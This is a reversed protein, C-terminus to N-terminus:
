ANKRNKILIVFFILLIAALPLLSTCPPMAVPPGASASVDLPLVSSLSRVLLASLLGAVAKSAIFPAIPVDCGSLVSATQLIVSLGSFGVAFACVALANSATLAGSSFADAASACGSAFEFVSLLASYVGESPYLAYVSETVIRGALSFFTVSACVNLIIRSADTVSSTVADSVSISATRQFTIRPASSKIPSILKLAAGVAVSVAATVAFVLLGARTSGFMGKGVAFVPYAPSACASFCLLRSAERRDIRGSKYLSAVCAGGLPFGFCLGCFLASAGCSLGFVARFPRRLWTDIREAGGTKIFFSSLVTFPFVSPIVRTACVALAGTVGDTVTDPMIYFCLSLMLVAWFSTM